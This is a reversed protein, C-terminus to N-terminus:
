VGPRLVVGAWHTWHQRLITVACTVHDGPGSPVRGVLSALRAGGACAGAPM